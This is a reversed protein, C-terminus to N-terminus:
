LSGDVCFPAIAVRQRENPILKILEPTIGKICAAIVIPRDPNLLDSRSFIKPALGISYGGICNIEWRQKAWGISHFDGLPLFVSRCARFNEIYIHSLGHM